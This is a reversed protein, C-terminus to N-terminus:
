KVIMNKMEKLEKELQNFYFSSILKFGLFQSIYVTCDTGVLWWKIVQPTKM